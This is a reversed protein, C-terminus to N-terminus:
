SPRRPSAETAAYLNAVTYLRREGAQGPGLETSFVPVLIRQYEPGEFRDLTPWATALLPATLVQVAVAAGGVRPRFGPYGLAAGWGVPLLDGEILGDTWEGGLPAVIHHNPQGPALTGYVALTHSTRFHADLQREACRGDSGVASGSAHRQRRVANAAAVLRRVEPLSLDDMSVVTAQRARVRLYAHGEMIMNAWLRCEQICRRSYM